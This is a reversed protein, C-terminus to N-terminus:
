NNPVSCGHYTTMNDVNKGPSVDLEMNSMPLPSNAYPIVIPIEFRSYLTFPIEDINQSTSAKPTLSGSSEAVLMLDKGKMPNVFGEQMPLQTYLTFLRRYNDALNIYNEKNVPLDKIRLIELSLKDIDPQLDNYIRNFEEHDKNLGNIYKEM